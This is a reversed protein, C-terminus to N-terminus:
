RLRVVRGAATFRVRQQMPPPTALEGACAALAMAAVNGGNGADGRLASRLGLYSTTLRPNVEIVVADSETLVLDVGIYGRLGPLANCTRLAADIAREAQPHDFPTHGGSYSLSRATRISQANVSLAVSRQGNSMLSVSAPIGRVYRQVLLPDGRTVSRAARIADRLERANRALVVGVCGAGRAPKVVVPYGIERAVAAANTGRPHITTEPHSVGCRALRHSLNAKNSARRIAAAGPGLLPKRKREVRAALRELCGDTEPAILWVADASAILADSLAVCGADIPVIEVGAPADVPFRRDTTTVIEHGLAALDAILAIRMASGERGLSGPVARGAFGGGSAFEYLLIRM